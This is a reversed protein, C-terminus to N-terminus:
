FPPRPYPSTGRQEALGAEPQFPSVGATERLLEGIPKTCEPVNPARM